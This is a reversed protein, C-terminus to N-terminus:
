PQAQAAAAGGRTRRNLTEVLADRPVLVRRGLRVSPLEGSYIQSWVLHQSVGLWAAIEPVSLTLRPSQQILEAATKVPM